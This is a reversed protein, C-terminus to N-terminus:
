NRILPLILNLIILLFLLLHLALFVFELFFIFIGLYTDVLFPDLELDPYFYNPSWFSWHRGDCTGGNEEPFLYNIFSVFSSLGSVVSVERVSLSSVDCVLQSSEISFKFDMFFGLSSSSYLSSLKCCWSPLSITILM